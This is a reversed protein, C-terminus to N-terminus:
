PNPWASLNRRDCRRSKENVAQLKTTWAPMSYQERAGKLAHRDDCYYATTSRETFYGPNEAPKCAMREPMEIDMLIYRVQEDASRSQKWGNEAIDGPIWIRFCRM